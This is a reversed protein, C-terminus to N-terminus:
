ALRKALETKVNELMQEKELMKKKISKREAYYSEIIKPLVGKDKNSFLAGNPAVSCNEPADLQHKNLCTNVDIFDEVSEDLLTEPSMNAQMIIHPYLSALDFSMIWKHMGTQPVKVYGGPFDSKFNDEAPPVAINNKSLVRYIISDWIGTTGLTDGYNVGARYAMTAVLSLLGLKDDIRKVLEVDKINYDIYLEFNKEYLDNLGSYEEYSLKREGLVVHAIHDLKYSEQAGLTNITFKKFIEIYDLEVVGLIEYYEQERGNLTLFRQNVIGWPSLKKAFEEGLVKVVRNIVYPTDFFKCNWGTMIDPTVGEHSFHNIFKMLMDKEDRCYYYISDQRKPVYDEKYAWTRYTNDSSNWFTISTVPYKVESPHPFEPCFVEIDWNGKKVTNFDFDITNPFKEYVYQHVYNKNGYIKFNPVDKYQEMFEKCERMSDFNVPAVRKGDLAHMTGKESPVFMTPKFKIKKKVPNGHSDYGRYLLNNAYRYISTYIEPVNNEM